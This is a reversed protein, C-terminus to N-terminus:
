NGEKVKKKWKSGAKITLRKGAAIMVKEGTRPNRAERAPQDVVKIGLYGICNINNGEATESALVEFFEDIVSGTQSKPIGLKEAVKAVIDGKNLTEGM